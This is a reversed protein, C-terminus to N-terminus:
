CVTREKNVKESSLDRSARLVQCLGDGPTHEEGLTTIKGEGDLRTAEARAARAHELSVGLKQPVRQTPEKCPSPSEGPPVLASGQQERRGGESGATPQPARLLATTLPCPPTPDSQTVKSTKGRRLSETFCLLGWGDWGAMASAM